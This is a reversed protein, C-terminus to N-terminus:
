IICLLTEPYLTGSSLTSLRDALLPPAVSVDSLTKRRLHGDTRRFIAKWSIWRLAALHTEYVECVGGHRRHIHKIIAHLVM